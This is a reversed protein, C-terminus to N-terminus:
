RGDTGPASGPADDDPDLAPPITEKAVAALTKVDIPLEAFSTAGGLERARQLRRAYERVVTDLYRMDTNRERCIGIAVLNRWALLAQGELKASLPLWAELVKFADAITIPPVRVITTLRQGAEDSRRVTKELTRTGVLLLGTGTARSGSATGRAPRTQDGNYAVIDRLAFFSPLTLSEAEDVVIAAYREQSLLHSIRARLQHPKLRRGKMQTAEKADIAKVVAELVADYSDHRLNGLELIPRVHYAANNAKRSLERANFWDIADGLRFTKGRGKGGVVANIRRTTAVRDLADMILKGAGVTEVTPLALENFDDEFDNYHLVVYTV